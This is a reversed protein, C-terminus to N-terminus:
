KALLPQWQLFSEPAGDTWPWVGQTTPYIVQLVQFNRGGYFDIDQGFYDDYASLSVAGICIDFGGLFGSYYKGVEFREGERVRSNYENIVSHAMPRKLGIVVVEPAGTEKQIGISYAFPPLEGEADFVHMVSCGHKAIDDKTRQDGGRQM